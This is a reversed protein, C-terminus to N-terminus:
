AHRGPRRSQLRSKGAAVEADVSRSKRFSILHEQLDTLPVGSEDLHHRTWIGDPGLWWSSIGPDMALDILGRLEAMHEPDTVRILLEVRRDLNRHMLDASGMWVDDSGDPGGTGFAYIRSHELFRG